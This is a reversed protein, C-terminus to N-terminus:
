NNNEGELKSTWRSGYPIHHLIAWKKRFYTSLFVVPSNASWWHVWNWLFELFYTYKLSSSGITPTKIKSIAAVSALASGTWASMTSFLASTSVVFGAGAEVSSAGAEVSSVWGAVSAGGLVLAVLQYCIWALRQSFIPSKKLYFHAQFLLPLSSFSPAASLLQPFRSALLLILDRVLVILPFAAPGLLLFRTLGASAPSAAASPCVTSFCWFILLSEWSCFADPALGFCPSFDLTLSKMRLGTALIKECLLVSFFSPVPVSWFCPLARDFDSSLSSSASALIFTASWASSCWIASSGSLDLGWVVFFM